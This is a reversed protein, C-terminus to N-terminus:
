KRITGNFKEGKRKNIANKINNWRKKFSFSSIPFFYKGIEDFKKVHLVAQEVNYVRKM